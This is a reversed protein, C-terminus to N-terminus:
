SNVQRQLAHCDIDNADPGFPNEIEVAISNLVWFFFVIIFTFLAAWWPSTFWQCVVLPTAFWHIILLCDCTQAFPFPFPISSVKIAAQFCVMGHGMEQFFHSLIPAPVALVGVQEAAPFDM